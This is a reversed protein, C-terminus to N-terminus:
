EIWRKGGSRSTYLANIGAATYQLFELRSVDLRALWTNFAQAKRYIEDLRRPGFLAALVHGEGAYWLAPHRALALALITTGSRPSGIIFVPDARIEISEFDEPM